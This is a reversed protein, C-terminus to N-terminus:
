FREKKPKKWNSRVGKKSIESARKELLERELRWVKYISFTGLLKPKLGIWHPLQSTAEDILILASKSSNAKGIAAGIWGEREEEVLRESLNVLNRSTNGEYIVIKGTYFHLSPKSVGVMTLSENPRQSSIMLEAAQRLPLQRLRDVLGFMPIIVFVQFLAIPIQFGLLKTENIKSFSLFGLISSALFCIASVILLRSKILEEAFQPIEPDQIYKLVGLTEWFSSSFMLASFSLMLFLSISWAAFFINKRDINISNRLSFGILLAAAPTAPLWYSPLKTGACTFLLLVSLLWASSFLPLSEEPSFKRSKLLNNLATSISEYLGLILFPTFPLSAIVLIFGFFWWPAQHSNVVSTFRQFNHYGFFSDWFPKGEKILELLYWPLSIFLTLIIGPIPRLRNWLVDVEGQLFAFLILTLVMLVIAVPGKTLVAFALVIWGYAWSNTSPNVYTRWQLLLSIGLTSCLLADSVAIRSWIMVLPSLAFALVIVLATRRPFREGQLPWRMATDGLMLMMLLSSLASPFRAAWTGMPDWNLNGPFSYILSMLWYVLPPKDFRPIGNAMPTLWNGTQSMTRAAAAFKPPTEDILGTSGLQWFFFAFGIFLILCLGRFRSKNSIAIKSDSLKM